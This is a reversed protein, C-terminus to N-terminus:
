RKLSAVAVSMVGAAILVAANPSPIVPMSACSALVITRL